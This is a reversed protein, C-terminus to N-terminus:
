NESDVVTVQEMCLYSQPILLDDMKYIQTRPSLYVRLLEGQVPACSVRKRTNLRVRRGESDVIVIYKIRKTAISSTAADMARGFASKAPTTAIEVVKGEVVVLANHTMCLWLYVAFVTMGAALIWIMLASMISKQLSYIGVAILVVALALFVLVRIVLTSPVNSIENKRM